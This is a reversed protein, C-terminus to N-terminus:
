IGSYIIYNLGMYPPMNNHSSGSGTDNIAGLADSAAVRNGAQNTLNPAIGGYAIAGYGTGASGAIGTATIGLLGLNHRHSPLQATTLTHTEAGAAQGLATAAVVRNAAVSGMNDLGVATRGRLDPIRFETGLEGGTNYQTGLIAFLAAYTTRSLTRGDCLVWGTPASTGAFTVVTGVPCIAKAVTAVLSQVWATTPVKTTNDSPPITTTITPFGTFTPANIPALGAVTSALAYGQLADYVANRTPADTQGDWAVGFPTDNGTTGTGDAGRKGIPQWHTAVTPVVNQTREPYYYLYSGGDYDVLDGRSYWTDATYTGRSVFLNSQVRAWFTDENYLRRVIASLATDINDRNIGSQRALDNFLIPDDSQPVRAYFRPILLTDQISLVPEGTEPDSTTVEKYYYVEFWYTILDLDSPELNLTCVGAVFDIKAELPAYSSTEGGKLLWSDLGVLIYGSLAAGSADRFLCNIQTM